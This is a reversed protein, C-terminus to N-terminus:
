LPNSYMTRYASGPLKRGPRHAADAEPGHAEGPPEALLVFTVRDARQVVREVVAHGDDVGGATVALGLRDDAQGQAAPGPFM